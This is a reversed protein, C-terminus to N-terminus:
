NNSGPVTSEPLALAIGSTSCRLLTRIASTSSITSTWEMWCSARPSPTPSNCLFAQSMRHQLQVFFSNYYNQAPSILENIQGLNPNIRGETLLDNDMNPLTISPGSCPATTAGPPCTIYTTTGQLPNLNADYASGSLLHVGHNWMTGISVTTNEFIEREIQLSAQLIYPM